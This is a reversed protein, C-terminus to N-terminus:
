RGPRCGLGRPGHGSPVAAAPPGSPPTPLPPTRTGRPPAAADSFVGKLRPLLFLPTDGFHARVHHGEHLIHQVHIGFGVIRLPRHDTEVLTGGLQQGVDPFRNGGLRPPRLPLVVLVPPLAGAVQEQEALGPRAPAVHCHRLPAGGLVEGVLHAPQHVLSVRLDRHNAQDQVVQVGVPHRRQVLSERGWLGPTDGLPQLKMVSGLMPTPQIHRLDLEADEGATTESLAKGVLPGEASLDMGQYQLPVLSLGADVPADVDEIGAGLEM